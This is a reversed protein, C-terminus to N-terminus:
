RHLYEYIKEALAQNIGPAQTLESVSASNLEQLGGFYKLLDMSRKAGVGPINELLSHKRKNALQKRHGSIAFRHAEDRVEQLLHLEAATANFRLPESEGYIYIEELGPKRTVGKAIAMLLVDTIGYNQLVEAAIKLQGKGGDILIVEPPTKIHKYYRLLAERLAAYDDSAAATQINFRRYDNKIPGAKGFVVCAGVTAEGMTHSIDFCEIRTPLTLLKFARKFEELNKQYVNEKKFHKVLAHQANVEAMAILKSFDGRVKEKLLVKHEAKSTLVTELWKRDPLQVNTIIKEPFFTEHTANLYYQALFNAVIEESAFSGSHEPFFSKEGLVLGNRVYLVNICCGQDSCAIAVFDFNGRDKIMYQTTQVKRFAAIQDRYLAATEYDLDAAAKEMLKTLEENIDNNKNYLFSEVLGVNRAYTEKDIYGVCPGFCRKIQYQICPRTRLKFYSDTCHRLKFVRQLLYLTSHVASANPFPGFYKGKKEKSGRHITLRPFDHDSLFLYPFSKDDKFLINYPPRLSKILNSELLLASNENETIIIEINAIQPVFVSTKLDKNGRFYSSVRKKLNKAKGVYLIKGDKDFMQYVGPKNPLTKLFTASSFSM